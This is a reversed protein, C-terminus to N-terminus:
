DFSHNELLWTHSHFSSWLSLKTVFFQHKKITTNSFARSLGKSLLSILGTFRLPFWDQINMPFVSASVRTSQGGSAFLPSMPFSVSAPFSQLCSSLPIVSSSIIPVTDSVRHVHTKALELLQHHVSFILMSCDMPDCLRLCSQAVKMIVKWHSLPLSDAQLAPAVSSVPEIGPHPLDGPPPCPFWSWYEQRSFGMSLPVQHAIYDMPDRLTMCLHSLICIGLCKSMPLYSYEALSLTFDTCHHLCFLM